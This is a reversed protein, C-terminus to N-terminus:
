SRSQVWLNDQPRGSIKKVNDDSLFQNHNLNISLLVVVIVTKHPQGYSRAGWSQWIIQM